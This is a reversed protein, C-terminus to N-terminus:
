ITKVLLLKLITSYLDEPKFPKVIVENMGAEIFKPHESPNGHATLAIIPLISQDIMLEKRVYKTTEVGDMIPMQIDMIIVDYKDRRIKKIAERGDSAIDVKMNPWQKELTKKVVLQNMMNDEVVLAKMNLDSINSPVFDENEAKHSLSHSPSSFYKEITKLLRIAADDITDVYKRQENDLKTKSLLRNIGMIGNLYTRLEHSLTDMFQKYDQNM